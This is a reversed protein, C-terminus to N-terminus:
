CKESQLWKSGPGSTLLSVIKIPAVLGRFEDPYAYLSLCKLELILLTHGTDM